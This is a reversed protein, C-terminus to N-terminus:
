RAVQELHTHVRPVLTSYIQDVFYKLCNKKKPPIRTKSSDASLVGPARACIQARAWPGLIRAAGRRERWFKRGRAPRFMSAYPALAHGCYFLPINLRILKQRWIIAGRRSGQRGVCTQLSIYKQCLFLVMKVEIDIM